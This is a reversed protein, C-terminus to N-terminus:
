RRILLRLGRHGAHNAYCNGRQQNRQGERGEGGKRLGPGGIAHFPILRARLQAGRRLAIHRLRDLAPLQQGTGVLETEGIIGAEQQAIRPKGLFGLQTAPGFACQFTTIGLWAPHRSIKVPERGEGILGPRLIGEGKGCQATWVCLGHGASGPAASRHAISCLSCQEGLKGCRQRRVIVIRPHIRQQPRTHGRLGFTLDEIDRGGSAITEEGTQPQHATLIRGSDAQDHARFHQAIGAIDIVPRPHQPGASLGLGRGAQEGGARRQNRGREVWAFPHGLQQVRGAAGIGAARHPNGAPDVVGEGGAGIDAAERERDAIIVGRQHPQAPGLRQAPKTIAGPRHRQEVAIACCRPGRLGAGLAKVPGPARGQSSAIGSARGAIELHRRGVGIM